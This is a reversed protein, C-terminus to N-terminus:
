QKSKLFNNFEEETAKKGKFHKSIQRDIIKSM